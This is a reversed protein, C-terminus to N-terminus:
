QSLYTEGIYKNVKEELGKDEWRKKLEEVAEGVPTYIIKNFEERNSVLKEIDFDPEM